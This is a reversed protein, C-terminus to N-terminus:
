VPPSPPMSFYACPLYNAGDGRELVVVTDPRMQATHTANRTIGRPLLSAVVNAEDVLPVTEPHVHDQLRHGVIAQDEVDSVTIYMVDTPRVHRERRLLATVLATRVKRTGLDGLVRFIHACLEHMVATSDDALPLDIEHPFHSVIVMDILKSDNMITLFVDGNRASSIQPNQISNDDKSVLRILFNDGYAVVRTSQMNDRLTTVNRKRAASHVAYNIVVFQEPTKREVAQYLGRLCATYGPNKKDAALIVSAFFSRAACAARCVPKHGKWHTTQCDKSCFPASCVCWLAGENECGTCKM